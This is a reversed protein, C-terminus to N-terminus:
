EEAFSLQVRSESAAGIGFPDDDAAGVWALHFLLRRPRARANDFM